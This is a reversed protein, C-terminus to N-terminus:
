KRKSRFKPLVEFIIGPIRFNDNGNAGRTTVADRTQPQGRVLQFEKYAWLSGLTPIAIPWIRTPNLLYGGAVTGTPILWVRGCNYVHTFFQVRRTDPVRQYTYVYTYIYIYLFYLFFGSFTIMVLLYDLFSICVPFVEFLDEHIIRWCLCVFCLIPVSWTNM